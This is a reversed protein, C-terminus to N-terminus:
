NAARMCTTREISQKSFVRPSKLSKYREVLYTQVQWSFSPSM